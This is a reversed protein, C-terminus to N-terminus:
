NIDNGRIGLGAFQAGKQRAALGLTLFIPICVAQLSLFASGANEQAYIGFLFIQLNYAPATFGSLFFSFRAPLSCIIMAGSLVLKSPDHGQVFDM